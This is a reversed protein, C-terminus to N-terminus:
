SRFSESESSLWVVTVPLVWLNVSNKYIYIPPRKREKIIRNVKM